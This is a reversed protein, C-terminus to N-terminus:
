NEKKAPEPEAARAAPKEAAKPAVSKPPTMAAVRPKRRISPEGTWQWCKQRAADYNDCLRTTGSRGDVVEIAGSSTGRADLIVGTPAPVPRYRECIDPMSNYIDIRKCLRAVAAGKLGMAWLTRSDLRAQCGEDTMTSGGSVGFGLASVGGSASGLCTELGAAALAPSVATPVTKISSTGSTRVNQTTTSPQPPNNITLASSSNNGSGSVAVAGSASQSGSVATGTGTATQALSPTAFLCVFATLALHKRMIAGWTPQSSISLRSRVM